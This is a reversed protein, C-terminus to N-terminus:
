KKTSLGLELTKPKKPLNQTEGIAERAKGKYKPNAKYKPKPRSPNQTDRTPKPNIPTKKKKKPPSNPNSLAKVTQQSTPRKHINPTTPATQTKSTTLAEPHIPHQSHKIPNIKSNKLEPNTLARNYVVQACLFAKHKKL